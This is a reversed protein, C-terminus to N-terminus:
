LVFTIQDSIGTLITSKQNNTKLDHNLKKEMRQAPIWSLVNIQAPNDTVKLSSGSRM